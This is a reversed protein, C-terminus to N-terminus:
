KKDKKKKAKERRELEKKIALDRASPEVLGSIQPMGRKKKQKLAQEFKKRLKGM